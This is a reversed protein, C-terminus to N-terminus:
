AVSPGFDTGSAPAEWTALDKLLTEGHSRIAAVADTRLPAQDTGKNEGFRM